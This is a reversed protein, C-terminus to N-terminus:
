LDSTADQSDRSALEDDLGWSTVKDLAIRIEGAAEDVHARGRVMFAWPSFGPGAILGDVVAAATGSSRVHRARASSPVDRGGLVMESSVPDFSWGGPVVHPLGNADVTAVRALARPPDVLWRLETASLISRTMDSRGLTSHRVPSGAFWRVVLCWSVGTIIHMSALALRTGPEADMALPPAVSLVGLARGLTAV